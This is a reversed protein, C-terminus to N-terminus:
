LEEEADSNTKKRHIRTCVEELYAIQLPSPMQHDSSSSALALGLYKFVVRMQSLVQSMLTPNNQNLNQHYPSSKLNILSNTELQTRCPRWRFQATQEKNILILLQVMFTLAGGESILLNVVWLTLSIKPTWQHYRINHKLWGPWGKLFKTRIIQLNDQLVM